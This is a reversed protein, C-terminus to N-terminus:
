EANLIEDIYDNTAKMAHEASETLMNAVINLCIDIANREEDSECYKKEEQMKKDILGIFFEKDVYTRGNIEVRPMKAYEELVNM